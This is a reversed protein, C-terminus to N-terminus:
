DSVELYFATDVLVARLTDPLPKGQADRESEIYEMSRGATLSALVMGATLPKTGGTIDAIVKSPDLGEELVERDLIDRVAQYAAQVDLEEIYVPHLHTTIAEDLLQQTLLSFARQVPETDQMVLWCHTGGNGAQHHKLAYVLHDFRGPGFLWVLGAHPPSLRSEDVAAQVRQKRRRDVWYLVYALITPLILAVVLRWVAPCDGGVILLDYVLNSLIGVVLLGLFFALLLGLSPEAGRLFVDLFENRRNM